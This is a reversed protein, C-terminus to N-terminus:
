SGGRAATGAACVAARPGPRCGRECAASSGSWGYRRPSCASSCSADLRPAQGHPLRSASPRESVAARRGRRPLKSGGAMLLSPELPDFGARGELSCARGCRRRCASPARAWRPAPRACHTIACRPWRRHAPTGRRRQGEARALPLSRRAGRASRRACGAPRPRRRRHGAGRLLGRWEDFSRRFRDLPRYHHSHIVAADPRYVKAYGAALMDRALLQDEAYASRGSPCASGPRGPSAATPTPSSRAGSTPLTGTAGARRCGHALSGFWQRARAQGDPKRRAPGPLPRVGPGRRRRRRLRRASSGALPRRGARRGPDPFRHTLRALARGAPQTHRRPLVGGAPM